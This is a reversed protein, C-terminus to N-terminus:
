KGEQVSEVILKNGEHHISLSEFHSLMEVVKDLSYDPEWEYYLRLSRVDDTRYEVDVHYYASLESLIQDLPVDDYLRPEGTVTLTDIPQEIAQTPDETVLSSDNNPATTTTEEVTAKQLGFFGTRVAAYSVGFLALAIAAAAAVKRWLPIVAAHPRQEQTLREWEADISEDSVQPSQMASKTKAMLTYLERCENDALIDQWQAESYREPQELMQLLLDTKNM